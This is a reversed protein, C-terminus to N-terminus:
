VCDNRIWVFSNGFTVAPACPAHVDASWRWHLTAFLGKDM